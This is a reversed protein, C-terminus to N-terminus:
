KQEKIYGIGELDKKIESYVIPPIKGLLISKKKNKKAEVLKYFRVEGFVINDDEWAVSLGSVHLHAYFGKKEFTKILSYYGGDGIIKRWGRKEFYSQIGRSILAPRKGEYEKIKVARRKTPHVTFSPRNLQDFPQDIELEFFMQNWNTKQETSLYLPHAIGVYQDPSIDLEDEEINLISASDDVYFLNLLKKNEDFVGWVLTSTYIFMVPNNLYYKQWDTFTWKREMVMCKELREKQIKTVERIEKQIFKLEIKLDASAANPISKRIKNEETIFHLKFDDAVFVRVEEGNIDITKFLGDFGFDPMIIESLDDLEVGRDKAAREFLHEAKELLSIKRHYKRSVFEIFRLARDSGISAVAEIVYQAMKVRRKELSRFLTKLKDLLQDDGLLGALSLIYKDKAAAGSLVFRDLIFEAFVQSRDQDILDLLFKAEKDPQMTKIQKMRYFLFRVQTSTLVEGSRLYLAPLDAEDFYKIRWKLKGSQNSILENVQDITM